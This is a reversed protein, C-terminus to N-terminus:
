RSLFSHAARVFPLSRVGPVSDVAKLALFMPLFLVGPVLAKHAKMIEVFAKRQSKDHGRLAALALHCLGHSSTKAMWLLARGRSPSSTMGRFAISAAALEDRISDLPRYKLRDNETHALQNACPPDIAAVMACSKDLYARVQLLLDARMASEPFYGGVALALERKYAVGCPHGFSILSILQGYTKRESSSRPSLGFQSPRVVNVIGKSALCGNFGNVVIDPEEQIAEYFLELFSPELWDDAALLKVYRGRAKRLLFNWNAYLGINEEHRWTKLRPDEYSTAVKWSDDGSANDAFLVELADSKRSLASEICRPLYSSYNRNPILISIPPRQVTNDDLRKEM